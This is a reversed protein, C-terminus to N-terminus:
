NQHCKKLRDFRRLKDHTKNSTSFVENMMQIQVFLVAGHEVGSGCQYVSRTKVIPVSMVVNRGCSCSSYNFHEAM